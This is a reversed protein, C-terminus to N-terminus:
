PQHGNWVSTCLMPANDKRLYEIEVESTDLQQPQPMIAAHSLDWGLRVIMSFATVLIEELVPAPASGASEAAVAHTSGLVVIPAVIASCAAARALHVIKM